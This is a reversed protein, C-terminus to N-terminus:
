LTYNLQKSATWSFLHSSFLGPDYELTNWGPGQVIEILSHDPARHTGQMSGPLKRNNRESQHAHLFAGVVDCVCHDLVQFISTLATLTQTSRAQMCCPWMTTPALQACWVKNPAQKSFWRQYNNQVILIQRLLEGCTGNLWCKYRVTIVHWFVIFWM